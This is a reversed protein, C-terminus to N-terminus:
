KNINNNNGRIIGAEELENVISIIENDHSTNGAQKSAILLKLRDVLENINDWYIYEIPKENYQWLVGDVGAGVNKNESKTRHHKRMSTGILPRIINKYKNTTTSRLIGSKVFNRRHVNTLHLIKKYNEGDRETFGTPNKKFILDYLGSTGNFTTNEITFVEQNNNDFKIPSKGILWRDTVPDYTVGYTLDFQRKDGDNLYARIYHKAIPPYSDLYQESQSANPTVEEQEEEDEEEEALVEEDDNDEYDDKEEVNIPKSKVLKETSYNDIIQYLPNTIPKYLKELTKDTESRGLKLAQYKKKINKSLEHIKRKVNPNSLSM